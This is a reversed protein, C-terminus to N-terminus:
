WGWDNDTEISLRKMNGDPTTRQAELAVKLAGGTTLAGLISGLTVGGVGPIDIGMGPDGMQRGTNASDALRAQQSRLYRLNAEYAYNVSQMQQRDLAILNYLATLKNTNDELKGFQNPDGSAINQREQLLQRLMDDRTKSIAYMTLMYQYQANEINVIQQCVPQQTQTVRSCHSGDDLVTSDGPLVQKPDAVRAGPVTNKDFSGIVFKKNISDLNKNITQGSGDETSGLVNNIDDTRTSIHGTDSKINDLTSEAQTDQVQWQAHAAPAALCLALVLAGLLRRVATDMSTRAYAFIAM